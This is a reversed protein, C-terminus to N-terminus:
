ENREENWIARIMAQYKKTMEAEERLHLDLIHALRPNQEREEDWRTFKEEAEKGWQEKIEEIRKKQDETLKKESM